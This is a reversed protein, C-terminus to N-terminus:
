PTGLDRARRQGSKKMHVYYLNSLTPTIAALAKEEVTNMVETNRVYGLESCADLIRRCTKEPFRHEGKGRLVMSVTTVSVGACQAIDKATVKKKKMNGQRTPM